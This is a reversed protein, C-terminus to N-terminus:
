KETRVRHDLTRRLIDDQDNRRKVGSKADKLDKQSQNEDDVEDLARQLAFAMATPLQETEEEIEEVVEAIESKMSLRIQRKKRDTDLVTVEVEDGVSVLEAPNKVFENSMESVHVLGPREAGIDVFAGFSEIRVVNGARKLGPQIDKWRLEVPKIMSLELRKANLDVNHVWVEVQDGESVVQDVRNVHGKQLRSIHVLGDIEAGIDVFAGFLEVKTIKGELKRNLDIDELRTATTREAQEDM